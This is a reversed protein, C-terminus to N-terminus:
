WPMKSDEPQTLHETLALTQRYLSMFNFLAIAENLTLDFSIGAPHVLVLGAEEMRVKYRGIMADMIARKGVCLEANFRRM